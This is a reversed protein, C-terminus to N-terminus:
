QTNMEYLERLSHTFIDCSTNTYSIEKQSARLAKAARDIGVM